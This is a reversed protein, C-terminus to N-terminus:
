GQLKSSPYEGLLIQGSCCAAFWGIPFYESYRGLAADSTFRFLVTTIDICVDGKHLRPTQKLLAVHYGNRNAERCYHSRLRYM